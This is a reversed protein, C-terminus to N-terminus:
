KQLILKNNRTVILRYVESSHVIQLERGGQFLEESRVSPVYRTEGKGTGSADTASESDRTEAM